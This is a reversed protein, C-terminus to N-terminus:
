REFGRRLVQEAAATCGDATAAATCGNAATCGAVQVVSGTVLSTADLHECNSLDSAFLVDAEEATHLARALARTARAPEVYAEERAHARGESRRM